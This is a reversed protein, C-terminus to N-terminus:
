DYFFKHTVFSRYKNVIKDFEKEIISIDNLMSSAGNISTKYQLGLRCIEIYMKDEDIDVTCRIKANITNKLRSQFNMSLAKYSEDM